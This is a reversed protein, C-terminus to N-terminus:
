RSLEKTVTNFFGICAAVEAMNNDPKEEYEISIVGAFEQRHLEALIARTQGIGTGWPVDRSDVTAKEIDKLHLCLTRGEYKKLCEIPDLGSRVWHGTDAWTGIRKSCAKIQRLVEDPNWNVYEPHEADKPHNHVAVNLGYEATLNDLMEFRGPGPECVINQVGMTRCFEFVKRTEAEDKGLGHFYYGVLKLGAENLKRKTADIAAAPAKYNLEAQPYEGGLKQWSHAELYTLGLSKSKDVADFFTFNRFTYTMMALRWQPAKQGTRGFMGGTESCGVASLLIGGAALAWAIVSVRLM